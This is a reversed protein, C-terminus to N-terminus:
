YRSERRRERLLFEKGWSAQWGVRKAYKRHLKAMLPLNDTNLDPWIDHWAADWRADKPWTVTYADDQHFTVRPDPYSPAVLRLVDPSLEVVDVHQVVASKLVARLVMGLGLGNILVRRAEALRTIYPLADLWEAPTDSMVVGDKKHLLRTYTGPPVPRGQFIYHLAHMKSEIDQGMVKREIRWDGSVGEPVDVQYPRKGTEQITM